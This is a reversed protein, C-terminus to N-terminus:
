YIWLQALMVVIVKLTKEDEGFSVKFGDSGKGEGLGSSAVM